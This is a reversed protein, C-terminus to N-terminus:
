VSASSQSKGSTGWHTERLDGSKGPCPQDAAAKPQAPELRTVDCPISWDKCARGRPDLVALKSPGESVIVRLHSSGQFGPPTPHVACSQTSHSPGQEQVTLSVPPSPASQLLSTPSFGSIPHSLSATSKPLHGASSGLLHAVGALFDTSSASCLQSPTGVSCLGSVGM